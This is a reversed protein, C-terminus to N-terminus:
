EANSSYGDLASNSARDHNLSMMKLNRAAYPNSDHRGIIKYPSRMPNSDFEYAGAKNAGM